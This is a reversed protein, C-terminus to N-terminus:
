CILSASLLHEYEEFSSMTTYIEFNGTRSAVDTGAAVTIEKEFAKRLEPVVKQLCTLLFIDQEESVTNQIRFSVLSSIRKEIYKVAVFL